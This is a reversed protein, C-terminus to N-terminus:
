GGASASRRRAAAGIAVLGTLMLATSAPEPVPPLVTSEISLSIDDVAFDNGGAATNRNILSLVASTAAGSAWTTTLGEWSGALALTTTRTGVSEGNISFELTSASNAGTYGASCCVNMVYAEFFYETGPIVTISASRWVIAGDVPSGNGVYSLGRGSTHDVASVFSGNWPFPNPRVTYQGEASNGGPSYSYDSTFGTNGSEFDGNPVLNTAAQAIPTLVTLAAIVLAATCPHRM